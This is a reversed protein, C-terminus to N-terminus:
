TTPLNDLVDMNEMRHQRSQMLIAGSCSALFHTQCGQGALSPQLYAIDDGPDIVSGQIIGM